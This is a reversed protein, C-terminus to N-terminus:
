KKLKNHMHCFEDEIELYKLLIFDVFNTYIVITNYVPLLGISRTGERNTEKQGITLL